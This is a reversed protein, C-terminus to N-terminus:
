GFFSDEIDQMLVIVQDVTSRTHWFVQRNGHSYHILSQNSVLTSSDRLSRSPLVCYFYLAIVRQTGWPKNALLSICSSTSQNKLQRLCFTFFDCLWSKLALRAHLAFEPFVSELGLSKGPMLHNLANTLEEPMLVKADPRNQPNEAFLIRQM